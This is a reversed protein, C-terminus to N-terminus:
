REREEKSYTDGLPCDYSSEFSVKEEKNQESGSTRWLVFLRLREGVM